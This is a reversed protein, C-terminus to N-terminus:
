GPLEVYKECYVHAKPLGSECLLDRVLSIFGNMQAGGTVASRTGADKTGSLSGQKQTQTERTGWFHKVAARLRVDLQPRLSM